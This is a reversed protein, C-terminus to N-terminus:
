KLVLSVKTNAIKDYLSREGRSTIMSLFYIIVIIQPATLVFWVWAEPEISQHEYYKLRHVGFHAIEWPLFKILNRIFVNATDTENHPVIKLRIIRKGITGARPSRETFYAYLFVPLTLTSFGLLQEETPGLTGIDLLTSFAFLLLAYTVIILYDIAFALVRKVVLKSM